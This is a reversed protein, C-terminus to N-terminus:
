WYGMLPFTRCSFAEAKYPEYMWIFVQASQMNPRDSSVRVRATGQRPQPATAPFFGTSLPQGGADLLYAGLHVTNGHDANYSYDVELTASSGAKDSIRFHSLYDGAMQGTGCNLRSIAQSQGAGTPPPTPPYSPPASTGWTKNFPFYRHMFWGNATYAVVKLQNSTFSPPANSSLGLNVSAQGRGPRLADPRVAYYTLDQGNNAMIVQIYAPSSQDGAYEYDVLVQIERPTNQIVNIGHIQNGALCHTSVALLAIAIWPMLVRRICHSHRIYPM